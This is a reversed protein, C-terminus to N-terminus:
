HVFSHQNVLVQLVLLVFLMEKTLNQLSEKLFRTKGYTKHLDTVEIQVSM